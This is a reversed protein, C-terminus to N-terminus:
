IQCLLLPQCLVAEVLLEELLLLRLDFDGLFIEDVLEDLIVEEVNNFAPLKLVELHGFLDALLDLEGQFSSGFKWFQPSDQYSLGGM